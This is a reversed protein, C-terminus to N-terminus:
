RAEVAKFQALLILSSVLVESSLRDILGFISMCILDYLHGVEVQGFLPDIQRCSKAAINIVDQSAM